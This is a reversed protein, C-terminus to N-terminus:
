PFGPDDGDAPRGPKLQLRYSGRGSEEAFALGQGDPQDWEAGFKGLDFSPIRFIRGGRANLPADAALLRGTPTAGYLVGCARGANQLFRRRRM